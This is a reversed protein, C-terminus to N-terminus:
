NSLTRLNLDSFELGPVRYSNTWDNTSVSSTTSRPSWVFNESSLDGAQAMLSSLSPYSTDELMKTSVSDNGTTGSIDGEVAFTITDGAPVTVFSTGYPTTDVNISVQNNGDPAAGGSANLYKGANSGDVQKVRITDVTVAGTTAVEFSMQDVLVRGASDATITFQGLTRSSGDSLSGSDSGSAAITPLSRFYRAGTTTAVASDDLTVTTGSELGRAENNSANTTTSFRVLSGSAGASSPGINGFKVKVTLNKDDDKGVNFGSINFHENNSTFAPSTKRLLETAGDFLAIEAIDSASSSANDLQLELDTVEFGENTTLFDFVGVTAESGAVYWQESPDSNDISVTVTGSSGITMTQGNSSSVSEGIDQGSQVGTVSISPSGQIGWSFTGSAGSAVDCKMAVTKTTGKPVTFTDNFTFTTDSGSNISGGNIVNGGRNLATSGDWLQCGSIDTSISMGTGHARLPLSSFRVDEGSGTADFIYNTFTYDQAGAVISQAAPTSGVSVNLSGAKVTMTNMTVTNGPLTYADGTDVGEPDTWYTSSVTTTAKITDGDSFNTGVKGRLTYTHSGTPFEILDTFAVKGDNGGGTAGDVPGAVVSGNENVLTVNTLNTASIGSTDIGFTIGDVELAEGLLNTTFAGLPQNTVNIAVNQAPVSNSKSITSVSGGTITVKSGDFFPNGSTPFSSGNSGAAETSGNATPLIGHGFTEGSVHIDYTEEIDFQVTDTNASTGTIDGSIAVDVNNGEAIVIGNGFSATVTDGDITVPYETGDVDVVLNSLASLDASGNNTWRISNLRVDEESGADIRVSSFTYDTTGLEKGRDVEPDSTGEEVTVSGISLSNNVTHQAGSIPLSGSVSSSTNIAVVNLGGVEGENGFQSSPANAAITFTKSGGAPITTSKGVTAQDNSNLSRGDGIQTGDSNLLLVSDFADRSIPGAMQVTVSNVTAASSGNNTVTFKTFPVRAASKVFLGNAPQGNASVSLGSGTGGGNNNGGGNNGGSMNACVVNAHARSSPGWYGTGTSLGVPALVEASYKNQFKTVGSATISGFYSTENGPSGAGSTALQTDPDMNLFKQLNQVETGTDGTTLNQTFTYSCSGGSGSGGGSGSTPQGNLASEVNDMTAQDAGFSSLLNLISQIQSNTLQAQAPNVGVGGIMMFAVFIGTFGAVAKSFSTKRFNYSM